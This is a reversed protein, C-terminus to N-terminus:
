MLAEALDAIRGEHPWVKRAAKWNLLAEQKRKASNLAKAGNAGLLFYREFQEMDRLALATAARQNAIEVRIREPIVTTVPLKESQALAEEAQQYYTNARTLDKAHEYLRGLGLFTEGEYQTAQVIGYDMKLFIPVEESGGSFIVRAEGIYRLVEQTQGRQAYAHALGGLAKSRLLAPMEHNLHHAAEQYTQLMDSLQGKQYFADGLSALASVSLARDQALKGYAVAQRYCAIRQELHLRHLAIFGLLFYGQSTLYAATQQYPSPYQAIQELLPLYQSLAQEISLFDQGLMVHWCATNAAACRPLFEEMVKAPPLPEQAAALLAPPLALLAVLAERRSLQYTEPAYLSKVRDFMCLEQDILSELEDCHAAHGQWQELLIAISARKSDFWRAPHAQEQRADPASAPPKGVPETAVIIRQQSSVVSPSSAAFLSRAIRLIHADQQQRIAEVLAMVSAAPEEGYERVDQEYREGYRLAEDYRGQEALLPLLLCLADKDAPHAIVYPHILSLAKNIHEQQAYRATLHHLCQRYKAQLRERRGQAWDAYRDHPLFDGQVLGYAREWLPLADEGRDEAQTAAFITAEFEDADISVMELNLAYSAEDTRGTRLILEWGPDSLAHQVIQNLRSKAVALAAPADEPQEDEPWIAEILADLTTEHKEWALGRRSLRQHSDMAPGCCLLVKLLTSPITSSALWKDTLPAGHSLLTFTGFTLLRLAPLHAPQPEAQAPLHQM